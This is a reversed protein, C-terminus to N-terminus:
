IPLFYILVLQITFLSSYDNVVGGGHSECARGTRGRGGDILREKKPNLTSPKTVAGEGDHGAVYRHPVVDSVPTNAGQHTKNM